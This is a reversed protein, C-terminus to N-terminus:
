NRIDKGEENHKIPIFEFRSYYKYMIGSFYLVM